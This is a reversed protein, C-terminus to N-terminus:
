EMIMQFSMQVLAGAIDFATSWARITLGRNVAKDAEEARCGAGFFIPADNNSNKEQNQHWM